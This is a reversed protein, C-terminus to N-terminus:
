YLLIQLAVQASLADDVFKLGFVECRRETIKVLKGGTNLFVALDEDGIM